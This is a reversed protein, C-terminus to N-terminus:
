SHEIVILRQFGQTVTMSDESDGARARLRNGRLM